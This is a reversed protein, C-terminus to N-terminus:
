GEEMNQKKIKDEFLKDQYSGGRNKNKEIYDKNNQRHMQDAEKQNIKGEKRMAEIKKAKEAQQEQAPTGQKRNQNQKDKNGKLKKIAEKGGAQVGKKIIKAKKGPNPSLIGVGGTANPKGDSGRMCTENEGCDVPEAELMIIAAVILWQWIRGDPDVYKLPNHTVYNYVNINVSKYIGGAGKLSKANFAQEPFFLQAGSPIFEGLAPDTSLWLSIKPDYYRAGFYYYGTEEDLEKGTVKAGLRPKSSFTFDELHGKAEPNAFDNQAEGKQLLSLLNLLYLYKFLTLRYLYVYQLYQAQSEQM